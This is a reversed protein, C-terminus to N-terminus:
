RFFRANLLFSMEFLTIIRFFMCLFGVLEEVEKPKAYTLAIRIITAICKERTVMQDRNLDFSTAAINCM